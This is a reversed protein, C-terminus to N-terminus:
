NASQIDNINKLPVLNQDQSLEMIEWLPGMNMNSSFVGLIESSSRCWRRGLVGGKEFRVNKPFLVM